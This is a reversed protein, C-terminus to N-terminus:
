SSQHCSATEERHQKCCGPYESLDTWRKKGQFSAEHPSPTREDEFVDAWRKKGQSCDRNSSMNKTRPLMSRRPTMAVICATDGPTWLQMKCPDQHAPDRENESQESCKQEQLPFAGLVRQDVFSRKDAAFFDLTQQAPSEEDDSIDEWQRTALVRPHKQHIPSQPDDSLYTSAPSTQHIPTESEDSLYISGPSTEADELADLVDLLRERCESEARLTRCMRKPSSTYSDSRSFSQFSSKRADNCSVAPIPLTMSRMQYLPWAYVTSTSETRRFTSLDEEGDDAPTWTSVSETRRLTSLDNECDDAPASTSISETRRFTLMDEEDDAPAPCNLLPDINSCYLSNDAPM